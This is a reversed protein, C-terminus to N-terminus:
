PLMMNPGDSPVLKVTFWRKGVDFKGGVNGWATLQHAWLRLRNPPTNGWKNADGHFYVGDLYNTICISTRGVDINLPPDLSPIVAEIMLEGLQTGTLNGLFQLYGELMWSYPGAQPPMDIELLPTWLGIAPNEGMPQPGTTTSSVTVPFSASASLMPTITAIEGGPLTAFGTSDTNALSLFGVTWSDMQIPKKQTRMFMQLTHSGPQVNISHDFATFGLPLGSQSPIALSGFHNGSSQGDLSFGIQVVDGSTGSGSGGGQANDGQDDDSSQGGATDDAGANHGSPTSLQFSANITLDLPQTVTFPMLNGVATWKNPLTMPGGSVVGAPFSAPFGQANLWQYDFTINGPDLLRCWMSCVYNGAPVNTLTGGFKDSQPYVGRMRRLQQLIVIPNPDTLSKALTVKIEYRSGVPANPKNAPPLVSISPSCRVSLNFPAVGNVNCEGFFTCGSQIKTWPLAPDFSVTVFGVPAFTSTAIDETYPYHVGTLPRPTGCIGFHGNTFCNGTVPPPAGPNSTANGSTQPDDGNSM